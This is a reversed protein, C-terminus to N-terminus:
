TVLQVETQTNIESSGWEAVGVGSHSHLLIEIEVGNSRMHEFVELGVKNGLCLVILAAM